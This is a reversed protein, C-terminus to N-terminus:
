RFAPDPVLPGQFSAKEFRCREQWESMEAKLAQSLDPLLGVDTDVAACDGSLYDSEVKLRHAERRISPPLEEALARSLYPLALLPARAQVLRRGLLYSL